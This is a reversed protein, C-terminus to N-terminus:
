IEFRIMAWNNTVCLSFIQSVAARWACLGGSNVCFFMCHTNNRHAFFGQPHSLDSYFLVDVTVCFFDTTFLVFIVSLVLWIKLSPKLLLVEQWDPIPIQHKLLWLSVLGSCSFFFWPFWKGTKVQVTITSRWSYKCSSIIIHMHSRSSPYSLLPLPTGM